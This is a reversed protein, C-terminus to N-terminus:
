RGNGLGALIGEWYKDLGEESIKEGSSTRGSTVEVGGPANKDDLYVPKTAITAETNYGYGMIDDIYQSVKFSDGEKPNYKIQSAPRLYTTIAPEDKPYSYSRNIEGNILTSPIFRRAGFSVDM